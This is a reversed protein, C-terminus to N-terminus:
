NVVKGVAYNKGTRIIEIKEELYRGLFNLLYEKNFNSVTILKLAKEFGEKKLIEAAKKTDANQEELVKKARIVPAGTEERLKKIQDVTVNSM